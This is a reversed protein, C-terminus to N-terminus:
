RRGRADIDRGRPGQLERIAKNTTCSEYQLTLSMGLNLVSNETTRVREPATMIISHSTSTRPRIGPGQLESVTYISATNPLPEGAKINQSGQRSSCRGDVYSWQFVANRSTVDDVSM